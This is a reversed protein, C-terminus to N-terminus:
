KEERKIEHKKSSQLDSQIFDSGLAIFEGGVEGGDIGQHTILEELANFQAVLLRIRNAIRANKDFFLVCFVKSSSYNGSSVKTISNFLV